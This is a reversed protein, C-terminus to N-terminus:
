ILFTAGDVSQIVDFNPANGIAYFTYIRNPNVNVKDSKIIQNNQSVVVDVRYEKPPVIIYETVDQFEVDKFATVNDIIIDVGRGNPVLHVFRIKSNNGDSIEKDEEIPLIKIEDEDGIIAITALDGNNVEIEENVIPNELTNEGYVTLIYRGQPVYVYPTFETFNISKYFPQDNLYIDVTDGDPVAHFVRILSYNENFNRM